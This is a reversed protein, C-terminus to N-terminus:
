STRRHLYGLAHFHCQRTALCFSSCQLIGDLGDLVTTKPVLRAVELLWMGTGSAVDAITLKTPDITPLASAITPHITFGLAEKWLYYQYNLRVAAAHNRNLLYAQGEALKFSAESDEGSM